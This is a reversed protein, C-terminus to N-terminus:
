KFDEEELTAIEGEAKESKPKTHFRYEALAVATQFANRIERRNWNMQAMRKNELIYRRVSKEIRM